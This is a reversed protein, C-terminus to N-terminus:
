RSCSRATRSAARDCRSRWSPDRDWAACSSSTSRHGPSPRWSASASTRSSSRSAGGVVNRRGAFVTRPPGPLPPAVGRASAGQRTSPPPPSSSAAAVRRRARPRRRVPRRALPVALHALRDLAAIPDLASALEQTAQALLERNQETRRRETVDRSVEVFGLLDGHEDRLATIVVNALFRSGDKRLRWGENEVHGERAARDLEARANGRAVEEPPFFSEFSRGLIEEPSWGKLLRAGTSWSAVLGKPDLVLIAYDQVQDLVARFRSESERLAALATEAAIRAAREEALLRAREAHQHREIAYRISRVLLSPEFRGRSSTTRLARPSPGRRWATTTSRRSCSSRSIRSRSM